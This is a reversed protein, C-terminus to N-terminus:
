HAPTLHLALNRIRESFFFFLPRCPVFIVVAVGFLFVWAQGFAHMDTYPSM